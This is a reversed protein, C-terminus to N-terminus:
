LLNLKIKNNKASKDSYNQNSKLAKTQNPKTKSNQASM